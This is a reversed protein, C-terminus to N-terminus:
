KSFTLEGISLDINGAFFIFDQRRWLTCAQKKDLPYLTRPPTTFSGSLSASLGDGGVARVWL